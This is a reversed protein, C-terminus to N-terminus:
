EIRRSLIESASKPSADLRTLIALLSNRTNYDLNDREPIYTEERFSGRNAVEWHSPYLSITYVEGPSDWYRGRIYSKASALAKGVSSFPKGSEQIEGTSKLEFGWFVKSDKGM